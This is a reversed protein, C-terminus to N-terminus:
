ITCTEGKKILISGKENQKQLYTPMDNEKVYIRGGYKKIRMPGVEDIFFLMEDPGIRHLTKLLGEVKERYDPDPSTLVRRAKKITYKAAKLCSSITTTGLKEGSQEKYVKALAPLTWSSRNVGYYNPKHHIIEILKNTRLDVKEHKASDDRICNFQMTEKIGEIGFYNFNTDV